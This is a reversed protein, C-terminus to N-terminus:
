PSRADFAAQRALASRWPGRLLARMPREFLRFSAYAVSLAAVFSAALTMSAPAHTLRALKAVAAFSIPHTLYLSYSINGLFAALPELARPTESRYLMFVSAACMASLLLFMPASRSPEADNFLSASLAAAFLSLGLVFNRVSTVSRSRQMMMGILFFPAFTMPATYFPWHERTNAMSQDLLVILAQQGCILLALAVSLAALSANAVVMCAVPFVLYFGIEIGLSWAGASNSLNGPAALAFLGSGTLFAKAIADIDADRFSLALNLAAVMALLPIIRAVRNRYFSLADDPCISASFRRSYVMQMTLGSLIFFTYVAFTGMSRLTIINNSSMYHYAAVSLAAVGRLADLSHHREIM